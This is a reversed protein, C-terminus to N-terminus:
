LTDWRETRITISLPQHLHHLELVEHGIVTWQGIGKELSVASPTYSLRLLKHDNYSLLRDSNDINVKWMEYKPQTLLVNWDTIPLWALLSAALLFNVPVTEPLEPARYIETADTSKNLSLLRRGFPDLLVLTLGQKTIALVANIKYHDSKYHIDLQQFAQWCCHEYETPLPLKELNQIRASLCGTLILLMLISFLALVPRTALRSEKAFFM